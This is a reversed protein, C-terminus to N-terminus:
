LGNLSANFNYILLKTRLYINLFGNTIRTYAVSISSHVRMIQHVHSVAHANVHIFVREASHPVGGSLEAGFAILFWQKM